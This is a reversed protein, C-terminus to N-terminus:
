GEGRRAAFALHGAALPLSGWADATEVEAFGAARLDALVEGPEFLRLAHPEDSRRWGAAPGAVRRFAIVRRVLERSAPDGTLESCVLWDYGERWRRRPEVVIAPSLADFLLLGGPRLAHHVRGLLAALARRGARPDAAYNVVESIATVAACGEPLEADLLSGHVFRAEPARARAIALLDASLDVGLVDFGADLLARAWVGSGCGLDVVLGAGFGAARLRRLLDPAADRAFAGHGDEHTWAVDPGYFPASM